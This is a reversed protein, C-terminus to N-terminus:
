LGNRVLKEYRKTSKPTRIYYYYYNYQKVPIIGLYYVSAAEKKPTSIKFKWVKLNRLIIYILYIM